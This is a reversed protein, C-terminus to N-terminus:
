YIDRDKNLLVNEKTGEPLPKCLYAFDGNQIMQTSWDSWINAM